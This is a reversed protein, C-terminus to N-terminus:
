APTREDVVEEVGVLIKSLGKLLTAVDQYVYLKDSVYVAYGDNCSREITVRDRKM